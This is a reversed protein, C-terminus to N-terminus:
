QAAGERAGCDVSRTVLGSSGEAVPVVRRWRCRGRYHRRTFWQEAADFQLTSKRWPIRSQWERHQVVRLVPFGVRPIEAIDRVLGDLRTRCAREIKGRHKHNRGMAATDPNERTDVVLVDGREAARLAKLVPLFDGTTHRRHLRSRLIRSGTLLAQFESDMTSLNAMADSINPVAIHSLADVLATDPREISQNVKM